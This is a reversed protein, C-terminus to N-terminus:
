QANQASGLAHIAKYSPVLMMISLYNHRRNFIMERLKDEISKLRLWITMDDIAVLTTEAEPKVKAREKCKNHIRELTAFDMTNHIKEAPHSSWIDHKLSNM